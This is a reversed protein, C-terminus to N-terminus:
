ICRINENYEEYLTNIKLHESKQKQIVEGIKLKKENQFFAISLKQSPSNSTQIPNISLRLPLSSFRIIRVHYIDHPKQPLVNDFMDPQAGGM